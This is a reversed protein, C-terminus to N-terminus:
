FRRAEHIADRIWVVDLKREKWPREDPSSLSGLELSSQGSSDEPAHDMEVVPTQIISEEPPNVVIPQDAAEEAVVEDEKTPEIIAGPRPDLDSDETGTTDVAAKPPPIPNEANNNVQETVEM